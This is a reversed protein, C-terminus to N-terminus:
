LEDLAHSRIQGFPDHLCEALVGYADEVLLRFLKGADPAYALFIERGNDFAPALVSAQAIEHLKQLGMADGCGVAHADVPLVSGLGHLLHAFIGVPKGHVYAAYAKECRIGHRFLEANGPVTGQAHLPGHEVDQLLGRFVSIDKQRSGLKHRAYFFLQINGGCANQFGYVRENEVVANNDVGDRQLRM